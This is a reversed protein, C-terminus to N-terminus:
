VKRPGKSGGPTLAEQDKNTQLKNIKTIFIHKDRALRELRTYHKQTLCPAWGLTSCKFLSEIPHTGPKGVFMLSPQSLKGLVFM